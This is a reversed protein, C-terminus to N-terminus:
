PVPQPQRKLKEALRSVSHTVLRLCARPAVLIVGLVVLGSIRLIGIINQNYNILRLGFSGGLDFLALIGWVALLFSIAGLWKHWNYLKWRRAWDALQQRWIIGMIIIVAIVILALGWGFLDVTSGTVDTVWSVLRDWQWFLVAVIIVLLILRWM